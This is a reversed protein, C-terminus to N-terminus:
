LRREDTNRTESQQAREKKDRISRLVQRQRKLVDIRLQLNHVMALAIAEPDASRGLEKTLSKYQDDLEELEANFEAQLAPDVAAERSTAEQLTALQTSFEAASTALEPSVAELKDEASPQVKLATFLDSTLKGGSVGAGPQQLVFVSAVLFAVAALVQWVAPKLRPVLVLERKPQLQPAMPFAPEDDLEACIDQWLGAPPEHTDFSARNDEIFRELNDKM